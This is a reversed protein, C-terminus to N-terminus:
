ILIRMLMIIETVCIRGRKDANKASNTTSQQLRYNESLPVTSTAVNTLLVCCLVKMHGHMTVFKKIIFGFLHV